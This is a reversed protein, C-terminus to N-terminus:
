GRLGSAFKKTRHASHYAEGTSCGGRIGETLKAYNEDNTRNFIWEAIRDMSSKACLSSSPPVGRDLQLRSARKKSQVDIRM